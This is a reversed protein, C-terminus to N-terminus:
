CSFIFLRPLTARLILCLVLKSDRLGQATGVVSGAGLHEQLAQGQLSFEIRIHVMYWCLVNAMPGGSGLDFHVPAVGRELWPPHVPWGPHLEKSKLGKEVQTCRASSM